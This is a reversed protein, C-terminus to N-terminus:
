FAFLSREMKVFLFKNIILIVFTSIEKFYCPQLRKLFYYNFIKLSLGSHVFLYKGLLYISEWYISIKWLFFEATYVVFINSNIFYMYIFLVNEFEFKIINKFSM